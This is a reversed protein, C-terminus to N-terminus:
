RLGDVGVQVADAGDTGRAGVRSGQAIQLHPVERGHGELIQRDMEAFVDHQLLLREEVLHHAGPPAAEAVFQAAGERGQQPGEAEADGQELAADVPVASSEPNRVVMERQADLGVVAGSGPEGIDAEAVM